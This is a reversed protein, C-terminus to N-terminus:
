RNWSMDDDDSGPPAPPVPAARYTTTITQPISPTPTHAGPMAPPAMTLPAHMQPAGGPRPLADFNPRQILAPLSGAIAGFATKPDAAKGGGINTDDGIIIISQVGFGPGKKPQPPQIGYAYCNMSVIAWVGAYVEAPNVVPNFNNPDGPIPKVVSPKFKSSARFYVCGTTYGDYKFKEGQDHFPSHLGVYSQGNWHSQFSQACIRWYEEYFLAMQTAVDQGPLPPPFLMDVGFKPNLNTATPAPLEFLTPWCLRVPGSLIDGTWVQQGAADTKYVKQPPVLQQMQRIWDDGVISNRVIKTEPM